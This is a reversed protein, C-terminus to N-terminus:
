EKQWRDFSAHLEREEDPLRSMRVLVGVVADMVHGMHHPNTAGTM